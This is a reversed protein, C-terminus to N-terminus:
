LGNVISRADEAHKSRVSASPPESQKGVALIGTHQGFGGANLRILIYTKKSM